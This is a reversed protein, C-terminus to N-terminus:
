YIYYGVVGALLIFFIVFFAVLGGNSESKPKVGKLPNNDNISATTAGGAEQNLGLMILNQEYDLVTYFNRLFVRGLRIQNFKDPVAEIGVFCKNKNM